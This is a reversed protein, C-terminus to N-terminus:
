VLLRQLARHSRGAGHDELAVVGEVPAGHVRRDHVLRQGRDRAPRAEALRQEARHRRELLAGAPQAAQAPRPALRSGATAVSVGASRAGRGGRRCPGFGSTTSSTLLANLSGCSCDCVSLSRTRCGNLNRPWSVSSASFPTLTSTSGPSNKPMTPRLPLPLLVSSFHMAPM